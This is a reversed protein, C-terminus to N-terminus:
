WKTKIHGVLRDFTAGGGNDTMMENRSRNEKGKQKKRRRNRKGETEKEKQKKKRRNREGETEKLPSM